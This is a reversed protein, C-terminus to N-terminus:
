ITKQYAMTSNISSARSANPGLQAPDLRVYTPEPSATLISPTDIGVDRCGPPRPSRPDIPNRRGEQKEVEKDLLALVYPSVPALTKEEDLREIRKQLVLKGRKQIFELSRTFAELEKERYDLRFLEKDSMPGPFEQLYILERLLETFEDDLALAPNQPRPNFLAVEYTFWLQGCQFPFPDQAGETRVILTASEYNQNSYNSALAEGTKVFKVPQNTMSPDCEMYCSSPAAPSGSVSGNMNLIGALDGVPWTTADETVNYRFAMAVQGLAANGVDNGVVYGSTPVYEAALGLFAYQQYNKALTNLWPFSSSNGPEIIFRLSSGSTRIDVTGIFERRTIRVTGESDHHMLPVLDNTSLPAVLSNVEPANSERIASADTGIEGALAEKYEGM